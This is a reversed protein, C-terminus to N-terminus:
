CKAAPASIASPEQESSVLSPLVATGDTKKVEGQEGEPIDEVPQIEDLRGIKAIEPWFRLAIFPAALAAAGGFLASGVAGLLRATLGSELGGLDNSVTIFIGIVGSVRGRMRDPALMQVVTQRVVVSINSSAGILFMMALSFWFNSSLAFLITGLGFGAIGVLMARGAHRMPPMHAQIMAMVIAGMAAASRLFGVGSGGVKLIDQAFIPLIYTVGGPLVALLELTVVGMMTRQRWVFKLGEWIDDDSPGNGLAFEQKRPRLAGVGLLALARVGAVIWMLLAYDNTRVLLVGAAAPGLMTGAQFMSSNWAFARSFQKQPVLLPLLAARAPTGLAQTICEVVLLAYIWFVPAEYRAVAALGVACIAQGALTYFWIWKRNFRDALQGGALSLLIMPLARALGIWALGLPDGTRAYVYIGLVVVEIQNALVIALWSPEYIRFDRSAWVSDQLDRLVQAM